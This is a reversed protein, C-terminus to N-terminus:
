GLLTNGSYINLQRLMTSIPKVVIEETDHVKDVVVGFLSSGSQMVVIYVTDPNKGDDSQLVRNLYVLPLLRGRLRWVPAGGIEEIPQGHHSSVRVLEAVSIQPIAYRQGESEVILAPVIALTLPLTLTFRTGKGEESFFSIAGGIKEINTKVVDMGVGRGSVGTIQAATSFGPRFIFQQIQATSMNELDAASALGKELAKARIKDLVLGQGDDSVEIVIHGGRHFANLTITGTEPKGAARRQESMEFGHDAANRVMHMLPDKILELVQRDLGTDAGLLQVEMKKGLEVSLDRVLRPLKAWANGIPQLRTKMVNDQLQTAIQNLRNLPAVFISEEQGRLLQLLQNRTLVLEGITTMLNELVEVNVRISQGAVPSNAPSLPYTEDSLGEIREVDRVGERAEESLSSSHVNVLVDLRQILAEDDGGPERQTQELAALLRKIGDFSELILSVAQPTVPLTGERFKGLVNELAHALSELRPLGLFGCTGKITHVLRFIGYLRPVDNPNQEFEVLQTDLVALNENTETLFERLLDDM